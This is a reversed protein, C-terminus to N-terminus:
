CSRLASTVHVLLWSSLVSLALLMYTVGESKAGITEFCLCLGVHCHADNNCILFLLQIWSDCGLRHTPQVYCNIYSDMNLSISSTIKAGMKVDVVDVLKAAKVRPRTKLELQLKSDWPDEIKWPIKGWLLHQCKSISIWSFLICSSESNKKDFIIHGM